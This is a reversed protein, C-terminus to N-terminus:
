GPRKRRNSNDSRNKKIAQRTRADSVRLGSLPQRLVTQRLATHTNTARADRGHPAMPLIGMGRSSQHRAKAQIVRVEFDLQLRYGRVPGKQGHANPQRVFGRDGLPLNVTAVRKWRGGPSGRQLSGAVCFVTDRSGPLASEEDGATM